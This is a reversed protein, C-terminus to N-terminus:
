PMRMAMAATPGSAMFMKMGDMGPRFAAKPVVGPM